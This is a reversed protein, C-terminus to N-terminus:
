VLHQFASDPAQNGPVGSSYQGTYSMQEVDSGANITLSGARVRGFALPVTAGEEITNTPGSFVWSDASTTDEPLTQLGQMILAMGLSGLLGGFFTAYPGAAAGGTAATLWVGVIVLIVGLIIKGISAGGKVNWPFIYIDRTDELEQVDSEDNIPRDDYRLRWKGNMIVKKVEEGFMASLGSIAEAMNTAVLQVTDNGDCLEKLKGTLHITRLTQNQIYHPITTINM